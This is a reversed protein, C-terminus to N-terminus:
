LLDFNRQFARFVGSIVLFIGVLVIRISNSPTSDDLILLISNLNVDLYIVLTFDVFGSKHRLFWFNDGCLGSTSVEIDKVIELM